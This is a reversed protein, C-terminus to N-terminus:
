TKILRESNYSHSAVSLAQNTVCKRYCQIVPVTVTVSWHLVTIPIYFCRLCQTDSSIWKQCKFIRNLSDLKIERAKYDLFEGYKISGSIGVNQQQNTLALRNLDIIILGLKRRQRDWHGRPRLRLDVTARRSCDHTRIGGLAQIDTQQSPQTNDPLPRQSPSIM